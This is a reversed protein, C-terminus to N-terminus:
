APPQRRTRGRRSGWASSGVTIVGGDLTRNKQGLSRRQGAKGMGGQQIQSFRQKIQEIAALLLELDGDENKVAAASASSLLHRALNVM